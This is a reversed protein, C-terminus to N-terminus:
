HSDSLLQLFARPSLITVGQYSGVRQLPGDGTVLYDAHGSVATALMDDDEPHSAVSAVPVTIPTLWADTRLRNLDEAIQDSILRRRFYPKQINRTLEALLLESVVLQFQGAVWADVILAPPSDGTLFGSLLVNSDLVATIM